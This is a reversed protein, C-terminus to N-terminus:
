SGILQAKMLGRVSNGVFINDALQLDQPAIRGEIARGNKILDQRLVGNLLGEDVPPTILIGDKEVFLNTYSGETLMGEQNVFLAETGGKAKAEELGAQFFPRKRTTKHFFFPDYKDVRHSSIAAKIPLELHVLPESQIDHSSDRGVLLRVKLVGNNRRNERAVHEFLAKKIEVLDLKFGFYRASALLRELHLDLFRFGEQPDWRFTEILQFEKFPRKVFAAKLRTEDYEMRPDSGITIGSGIGIEGKKGALEVTRIAVNFCARGSPSIFGIAGTYVSRPSSELEAIIEMTRIKPAGTVSGCPFLAHFIGSWNEPEILSGRITSTMQLLTEYREVLFLNPVCVSGTKSIRGIDNRILDVIMVNEARNKVDNFLWSASVMDEELTRGRAMTGKMPRSEIIGKDIKFFLEPSMSIIWKQSDFILAGYPVAQNARLALFMDVPNGTFTFRGRVTYNVQYTDGQSIYEHIKKVAEMYLDRPVDLKIPGIDSSIDPVDDLIKPSDTVSHRWVRPSKFIGLWLLPGKPAKRLLLHNLKPELCYGWEYGIWGSVWFGKSLAQGIKEFVPGTDDGPYATIVSFPRSFLYSSSEGPIVKSTELFVFPVAPHRWEDLIDKAKLTYRTEHELGIGMAKETDKYLNTAPLM